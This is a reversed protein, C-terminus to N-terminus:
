SGPKGDTIRESEPILTPIVAEYTGFTIASLSPNSAEIRISLVYSISEM